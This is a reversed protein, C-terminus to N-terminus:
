TPHTEVCPLLAGVAGTLRATFLPTDARTDLHCNKDLLLLSAEHGPKVIGIDSWADPAPNRKENEGDGGSDSL